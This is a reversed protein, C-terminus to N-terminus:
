TSRRSISQSVMYCSTADESGATKNITGVLFRHDFTAPSLVLYRCSHVLWTTYTAM